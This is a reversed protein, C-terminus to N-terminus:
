THLGPILRTASEHSIADLDKASLGRKQLESFQGFGFYSPRDAPPVQM